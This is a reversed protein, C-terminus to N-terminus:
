ASGGASSADTDRGRLRRTPAAARTLGSGATSSAGSTPAPFVASITIPTVSSRRSPRTRLGAIMTGLWM